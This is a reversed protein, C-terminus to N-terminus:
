NQRLLINSMVFNLLKTTVLINKDHCVHTQQSLCLKTAVFTKDHCAYKQQSLLHKTMVFVDKDFSKDSLVKM